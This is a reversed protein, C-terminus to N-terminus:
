RPSCSRRLPARRVPSRRLGFCSRDRRAAGGPGVRTGLRWSRNRRERAASCRRSGDPDTLRVQDGFGAEGTGLGRSGGAGTPEHLSRYGGSISGRGQQSRPAGTATTSRRSCSCAHHRGNRGLPPRLRGLNSRLFRAADVPAPRHWEPVHDVRGARRPPARRRHAAIGFGFSMTDRSRSSLSLVRPASRPRSRRQPEPVARRSSSRIPASARPGSADLDITRAHVPVDGRARRPHRRGPALRRERDGREVGRFGREVPVCSGGRSGFSQPGNTASAPLEPLTFPLMADVSPRRRAAVRSGDVADDALVELAGKRAAARGLRLRRVLKGRTIWYGHSSSTFAPAIRADRPYRPRPASRAAPRSELARLDAGGALEDARAYPFDGRETAVLAGRTRLDIPKDLRLARRRM